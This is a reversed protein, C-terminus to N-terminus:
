VTWAATNARLQCLRIQNEISAEIFANDTPKGPRSFDIQIEYHYAWLDVLQGTFEAGNDAFLYKPAGRLRVLKKLVDVDNEGRLRCGTEIALGERSFIDIVM